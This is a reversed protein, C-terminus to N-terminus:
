RTGEAPPAAVTPQRLYWKERLEILKATLREPMRDKLPRHLGLALAVRGRATLPIYYSPLDMRVFGNERKFRTLSSGEKNCYVFKEYLLHGVGRAECLKVTEALLANNPRRDLASLRSVIQMIAATQTDWILKLYGVLKDDVYAGLYSARERYTGQEREVTEFSKGYHWYKRGARVPSEDSVAMIGRIFAEDFPSERVTLGKKQSTKINRRQAASVQKTLWNDYTSIPVAAVNDWEQRFEYAPVVDPARQTFTFLDPRGEVTRLRQAVAPFDPLAAKPLWYADFVEATKLLRGNTVILADGMKWAPATTIQGKISIQHRTPVPEDATLATSTPHETKM